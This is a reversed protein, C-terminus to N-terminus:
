VGAHAKVNVTVVLRGSPVQDGQQVLLNSGVVINFPTKFDGMFDALTARGASSLIVNAVAVTQGAAIPPVTGIERSQPDGARTVTSPAAFVKLEPTAVTLSNEVVTYTIADITVDILPEDQITQLEPKETLLDVPTYLSIFLTLDCTLTTANCQAICSGEACAQAAAAACPDPATTCQQNVLQDANQLSWNKADITFTKDPLALDFNTIDSSILGCGGLALASALAAVLFTRMM